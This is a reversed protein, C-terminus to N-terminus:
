VDAPPLLELVARPAHGEWVFWSCNMTPAGQGLFDPRSTLGWIRSPYGIENVLRYRAGTNLFDAKLLLALYSVGLRHAQRIFETADRYPPNTIIAKALAKRVKLFDCCKQGASRCVLDTEIVGVGYRRLVRAIAGHGACPEWVSPPLSEVSCLQEVAWSPTEYFDFPKRKNVASGCGLIKAVSVFEVGVCCVLILSIFLIDSGIAVENVHTL